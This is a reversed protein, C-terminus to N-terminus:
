NIGPFALVFHSLSLRNLLALLFLKYRDNTYSLDKLSDLHM